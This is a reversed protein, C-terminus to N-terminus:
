QLQEHALKLKAIIDIKQPCVAECKGCEICESAQVMVKYVTKANWNDRLNYQTFVNPININKPCEICYKCNTCPISGSKSFENKVKELFKLDDENLKEFNEFTKVNDEVQYFETMGSLITIVNDFGGVYRFAYSAKSKTNDHQEFMNSINENFNALTGGKVPEMVIVPLNYKKCLEYCLNSEYTEYDLYNIQLQVFDIEEHHADVISKFCEFNDHFSFGAYKIKNDKKLQQIFNFGDYLDVSKIKDRDLAHLLYFDIYDVGLRELQENFFKDYDNKETAMWVPLKDAVFYDKRDHRKILCERFAEESKQNHYIYATDFYNVGKELAYDFMKCTKDYDIVGDTEPLRMGGFGLLSIKNGLFERYEM